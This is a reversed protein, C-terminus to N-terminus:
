LLTPLIACASAACIAGTINGHEDATLSGRCITGSMEASKAELKVTLFVTGHLSATWTGSFDQLKPAPTASAVVVAAFIVILSTAPAFQEEDFKRRLVFASTAAVQARFNGCKM